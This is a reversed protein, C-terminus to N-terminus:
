RSKTSDRVTLKVPLLITRPIIRQNKDRIRKLLLEAATKGIEEHPQAVTTLKPQVLSAIGIDDYGVISINDPIKLGKSQFAISADLAIKDNYAFIATINSHKKLMENAMYFGCNPKFSSTIIYEKNVPIGNDAHAKVYGKMRGRITSNNGEYVFFAIKRHGLKILYDIASYAGESDQTNVSDFEKFTSQVSVVPLIKSAKNMILANEECVSFVIIGDVSREMMHSIYHNEREISYRTDCVLVVFGEDNLISEIGGIIDTFFPNTVDSVILGVTRCSKSVLSRALANPIYNMDDMVKKVKKRTKENVLSSDNFVRSVTSVSVKAVKAVDYITVRQEM